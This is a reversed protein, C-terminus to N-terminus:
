RRLDCPEVCRGLSLAPNIKTQVVHAQRRRGSGGGGLMGKPM